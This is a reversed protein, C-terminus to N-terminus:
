FVKGGIEGSDVLMKLQKTVDTTIFVESKRSELNNVLNEINMAVETASINDKEILSIYQSTNCTIRVGVQRTDPYGRCTILTSVSSLRSCKIQVASGVTIVSLL